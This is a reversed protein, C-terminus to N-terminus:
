INKSKCIHSAARRRVSPDLSCQRLFGEMWIIKLYAVKMLLVHTCLVKCQGIKERRIIRWKLAAHVICCGTPNRAVAEEFQITLLKETSDLDRHLAKRAADLWGGNDDIAPSEWRM